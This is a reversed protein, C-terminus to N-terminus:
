CGGPRRDMTLPENMSGTRYGELDLCVHVYGIHKLERAVDDRLGASLFRDIEDRGIEIRALEGYHRVRVQTFGRGRLVEEAREVMSLGEETIESGYPFRSSLCAFSAKNWTSLGMEKSLQRIRSKTLGAELLPSRIGLEELARFGPRVDDRDDLNSGDFVADCGESAARDLLKRYLEKKCHYCRDPPNERFGPIGLECTELEVHRVGFARAIAAADERQWAPYTESVATAAIVNEPGLVDAAVRLLFTSDVGGSFAVLARRYGSILSKLRDLSM